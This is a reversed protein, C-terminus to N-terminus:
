RLEEQRACSVCVPTAQADWFPALNVFMESNSIHPGYLSRCLFRVAFYKWFKNITRGTRRQTANLRLSLSSLFKFHVLLYM